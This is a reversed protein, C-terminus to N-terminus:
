QQKCPCAESTDPHRENPRGNHYCARCVHRLLRRQGRYHGHHNEQHSCTGKQYDPCYIGANDSSQAHKPTFKQKLAAPSLSISQLHAFSDGWRLVCREIELLCHSHFNLVAKWDYSMALYMLQSLHEIRAEREAVPLKPQSLIACYGAVFQEISLEEYKIDSKSNHIPNIHAHPWLESKLM